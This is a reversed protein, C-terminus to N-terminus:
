YTVKILLKNELPCYIYHTKQTKGKYKLKM